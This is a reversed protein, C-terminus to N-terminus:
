SASKDPVPEAVSDFGGILGPKVQVKVRINKGSTYFGQIMNFQQEEVIEMELDNPSAGRGFAKKKLLEYAKEVAKEKSYGSGLNERYNEEPAAAFGQQTDAFLTVECTTRATAAGIANAVDWAPVAKAPLGSLEALRNAFYPAPGGLVLINKPAVRHGECLEHVTYVPRSNIEDVMNGAESLIIECARDFVATAAKEVPVNLSEAISAIGKVASERDGNTCIGLTFLADTPTPLNGGHAMAPGEREPGIELGGDRVGVLSDGGIGISKTKLARILTMFRELRIGGPELVPVGDIMVAMDTTTGGIDLVLTDGKPASVLAGMVSASPGSLVTNGPFEISSEFNLTGGDAKLIHIPVSLGKTELSRKVAEFFDRHIPYVVANLYATAIRRPFNLNGSIRHGLFVREFHGSLIEAMQIEHTPNRTSFKGVVGVHCIGAQKMSEAAREIEGRDIALIEHGRHDISGSVCHYHEGVRCLKPDIGPGSSVIMGAETQKNQVIANTTLTTSLVIRSIERSDMGDTIESLGALVTKFLDSHDTLVKTRRVVGTNSLLVADTHTGGVDLGIIM